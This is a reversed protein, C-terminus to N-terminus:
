LGGQNNGDNELATVRDTLATIQAGLAVFSDFNSQEMTILEDLLDNFVKIIHSGNGASQATPEVPVDNIGPFTEIKHDIFAM